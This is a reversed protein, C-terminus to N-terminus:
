LTKKPPRYWIGDLYADKIDEHIVAGQRTVVKHLTCIYRRGDYYTVILSRGDRASKAPTDKRIRQLLKGAHIRTWYSLDKLRQQLENQGIEQFEKM